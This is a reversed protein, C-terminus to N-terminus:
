KWVRYLVITYIICGVLVMNITEFLTEPFTPSQIVFSSFSLVIIVLSSVSLIWKRNLHQRFPAPIGPEAVIVPSADDQVPSPNDPVPSADDPQGLDIHEALQRLTYLRPLVEANEIRQLSRLSIGSLDALEKQTLTKKLRGARVMKASQERTLVPIAPIVSSSM